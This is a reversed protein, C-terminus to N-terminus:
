HKLPMRAVDGVRVVATLLTSRGERMEPWMLRFSGDPAAVIGFYDGYTPEMRTAVADVTSEACSSVSIRELPSFTDGGDFSVAFSQELCADRIALQREVVFLGLVGTHSVAMSMVRRANRDPPRSGVTAGPRNWANPQDTSHTVVISGGGSQRCAFYLRDRFPGNSQDVALASLQFGPPPGCTDNVLVAPSFTTAGDTSRSVYARRSAFYPPTWADEVFSAVVTGDTLVVPMEGFAHLGSTAMIETARDFTRGGNRSRAVFVTSGPQANGDRWQYHTTLYIWGKRQASGVDVTVAPHDHGSGIVTPKEDWTSGADDSHYVVLWNGREPLIAPLDALAVFVAQGDPLIAVQPDGCHKLPFDHRSWSRGSDHSAFTSCYQSRYLDPLSEGLASSFATALLRNADLPHVALHPESFRRPDTERAVEMPPGVRITPGDAITVACFWAAVSVTTALLRVAARHYCPSFVGTRGSVRQWTARRV